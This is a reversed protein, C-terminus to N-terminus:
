IKFYIKIVKRAVFLILVIFLVSLLSITYKSKLWAFLTINRSIKTTITTKSSLINLDQNFKFNIADGKIGIIFIISKNYTTDKSVIKIDRKISYTTDKKAGKRLKVINNYKKKYALYLVRSREDIILKDKSEPLSELSDIREELLFHNLLLSDFKITDQKLQILTDIKVILNTSDQEVVTTIIKTTACSYLLSGLIIIIIQRM